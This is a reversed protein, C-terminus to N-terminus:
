LERRQSYEGALNDLMLARVKAPDSTQGLAWMLKVYATEPLMDGGPIIGAALMERGTEYVHLNVAGNLCQTTVVVPLGRHTVKRAAALLEESIHGLGTGAIVIGKTHQAVLELHEPAFGPYFYLLAVQEEMREHLEIPGASRPRHEPRLKVEGDLVEGVPAENISQFADRRSAHMKRVKTGRHLQVYTDSPGAHMAVVVEGLDAEVCVRAAAILNLSADSSPRDSSRQAGVLVVPGPLSKLMFSLAAATYGMTDTGHPVIVGAAGAQFEEAIARALNQWHAVRMNESLISYLVRACVNCLESLQPVSRVLDAASIAPHVAGTRYEVYSAITGGTGLVAVAPKAPDHPLGEESAKQPSHHELVRVQTKADIRLGLNYGSALKLTLIEPGSFAHHPMLVGTYLNGAHRVELLDGPAAGAKKLLEAADGRYEAV